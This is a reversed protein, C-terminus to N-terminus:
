AARPLAVDGTDVGSVVRAETLKALSFAGIALGIDRLAIDFFRGMTVLNVVIALLWLSIIYAALRTYRTLVALGAIMEIVGVILMFTHGSFPLIGAIWPALYQDWNTLLHFFKDIGALFPAIFFGLRLAWWATQAETRNIAM